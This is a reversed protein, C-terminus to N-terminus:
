DTHTSETSPEKNRWSQVAAEIELSETSAGLLRKEDKGSDDKKKEEEIKAHEDVEMVLGEDIPGLPIRASGKAAPVFVFTAM